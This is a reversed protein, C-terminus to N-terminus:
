NIVFFLQIPYYSELINIKRQSFIDSEGSGGWNELLVGWKGLRVRIGEVM